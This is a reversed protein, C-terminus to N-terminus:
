PKNWQEMAQKVEPDLDSNFFEWPVGVRMHLRGPSTAAAEYDEVPMDYSTPEQKDYGAITQLVIATDVVSRTM